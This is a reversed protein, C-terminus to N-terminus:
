KGRRKAEKAAQVDGYRIRNAGVFILCISSILVFVIYIYNSLDIKMLNLNMKSHQFELSIWYIFSGKTYDGFLGVVLNIVSAAMVNDIFNNAMFANFQTEGPRTAYYTM